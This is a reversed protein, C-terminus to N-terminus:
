PASRCGARSSARRAARTAVTALSLLAFVVLAGRPAHARGGVRCGCGGGTDGPGGGGGDGGPVVGEVATVAITVDAGPGGGWPADAFWTIGEAVLGLTLTSEGAATALIPVTFRGVGGPETVAEVAAPRNPNSWTTGLPSPTDRPDATGLFVVAPDWALGGTNTFEITIMAPEGVSVTVSADRGVLTGAYWAVDTRIEDLRAHIFDGPCATANGPWDRHGRITDADSAIDELKRLTQVLLRGRQLMIEPLPHSVPCAPEPHYCGMFSVALNGPNNGGGTAGSTFDIGRAEWLSGDYGVLFQYPIDCYEGSDQAYAQLGRVVEAVSGGIEQQEATHHIAMRYWDDELSTCGTPRAGWAERSTIELPALVDPLAYVPERSPDKSRALAGALPFRPALLEWRLSRVARAGGITRLEAAPWTHELDVIAVRAGAGHHTEVLPVWAGVDAGDVGRAELALSADGDIEVFAAVRTGGGDTTAAQVGPVAIPPLVHRHEPAAALALSLSIQVIPM